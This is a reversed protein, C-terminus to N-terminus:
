AGFGFFAEPDYSVLNFRVGVVRAAAIIHAHCDVIHGDAM